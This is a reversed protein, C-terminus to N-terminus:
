ALFDSIDDTSFLSQSFLEQHTTQYWETQNWEVVKINFTYGGIYTGKSRGVYLRQLFMYLLPNIKYKPHNGFPVTVIARDNRSMLTIEPISLGIASIIYNM